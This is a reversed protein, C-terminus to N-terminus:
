RRGCFVCCAGCKGGQAVGVDELDGRVGGRGRDWWGETRGALQGQERSGAGQERSSWAMFDAARSSSMARGRRAHRRLCVTSRSESGMRTTGRLSRSRATSVHTDSDTSSGTHDSGEALAPSLADLLDFASQLSPLRLVRMIRPHGPVLWLGGRRAARSRIRTLLRLGGPDLFTVATLDVVTQRIDPSLLADTTPGLAYTACIDIEGRLEIVLATGVTRHCMGFAPEDARM